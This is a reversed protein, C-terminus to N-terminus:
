PTGKNNKKNQNIINVATAVKKAGESKNLNALVSTLIPVFAPIAM